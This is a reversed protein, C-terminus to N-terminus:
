RGTAAVKATLHRGGLEAAQRVLEPDVDDAGRRGLRVGLGLAM